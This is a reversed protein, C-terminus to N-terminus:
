TTFRRGIYKMIIADVGWPQGNAWAQPVALRIKVARSHGLPGGRVIRSGKEFGEWLTGDDWDFGDGRPDAAGLDRWFTQSNSRVSVLGVRAPSDTNYDRFVEVRIDLTASSPASLIYRPRRWSKRLEPWGAHQWSTEFYSFFPEPTNKTDIIDYADAITNAEVFCAADTDWLAMLPQEIV